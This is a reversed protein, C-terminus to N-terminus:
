KRASVVKVSKTRSSSKNSPKITKASIRVENESTPLAVSAATFNMESITEHLSKTSHLHVNENRAGDKAKLKAMESQLEEIHRKLAAMEKEGEGRTSIMTKIIQCAKFQESKLKLIKEQKEALDEKYKKVQKKFQDVDPRVNEGAELAHLTPSSSTSSVASNSSNLTNPKPSSKKSVNAANPVSFSDTDTNPTKKRRTPSKVSDLEENRQKVENQVSELKIELNRIKMKQAEGTKELDVMKNNCMMVATKFKEVKKTEKRYLDQADTLSNRLAEIENTMSEMERDRLEIENSQKQIDNNCRDLEAELTRMRQNSNAYKSSLEHLENYLHNIEVDKRNLEQSVDKTNVGMQVMNELSTSHEKEKMLQFM